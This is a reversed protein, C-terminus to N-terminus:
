KTVNIRYYEIRSRSLVKQERKHTSKRRIASGDDSSFNCAKREGCKKGRALFLEFPLPTFKILTELRSM